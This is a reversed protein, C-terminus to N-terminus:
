KAIRGAYMYPYLGVRYPCVYSGGSGAITLNASEAVILGIDEYIDRAMDISERGFTKITATHTHAALSQAQETAYGVSYHNADRYGYGRLFNGIYNPMLPKGNKSGFYDYIVYYLDPYKEPDYERGDCLIWGNVEGSGGDTSYKIDGVAATEDCKYCGGGTPCTFYKKHCMKELKAVTTSSDINYGLSACKADECITYGFKAPATVSVTAPTSGSSNGSGSGGGEICIDGDVVGNCVTAYYEQQQVAWADSIGFLCLTTILLFRKM